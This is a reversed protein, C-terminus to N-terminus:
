VDSQEKRQKPKNEANRQQELAEVTQAEDGTWGHEKLCGILADATAYWRGGRTGRGIRFAGQVRGERFWHAITNYNLDTARHVQSITYLRNKM